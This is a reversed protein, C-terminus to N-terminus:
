SRETLQSSIGAICFPAPSVNGYQPIQIGERYHQSLSFLATGPSRAQNLTVGLRRKKLLMPDGSNDRAPSIPKRQLQEFCLSLRTARRRAEQSDAGPGGGPMDHWLM